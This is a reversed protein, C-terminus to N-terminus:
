RDEVDIQDAIDPAIVGAHLALLILKADPSDGAAIAGELRQEALTAAHVGNCEVFVDRGLICFALLEAANELAAERRGAAERKCLRIVTLKVAEPVLLPHVGCARLAEDLANIAASKGFLSFMRLM